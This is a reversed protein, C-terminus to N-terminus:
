RTRRSSPDDPNTDVIEVWKGRPHQTPPATKGRVLTSREGSSTDRYIGSDSVKSGPGVTVPRM